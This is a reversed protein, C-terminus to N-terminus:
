QIEESKFTENTTKLNNMETIIKQKGIGIVKKLGETLM